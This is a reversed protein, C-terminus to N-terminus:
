NTKFLLLEIKYSSVQDRSLHLNAYSLICCYKLDDSEDMILLTVMKRIFL